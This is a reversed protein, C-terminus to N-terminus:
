KLQMMEKKMASKFSDWAEAASNESFHQRNSGWDQIRKTIMDRTAAQVYMPPPYVVERKKFQIVGKPYHLELIVGKHDSDCIGEDTTVGRVQKWDQGSIYWRDIRSSGKTGDAATHRHTHHLQAYQQKERETVVEPM